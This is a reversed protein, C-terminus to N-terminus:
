PWHVTTRALTLVTVLLGCFFTIRGIEAAKGNSSLVYIVLGILVLLLPMVAILM